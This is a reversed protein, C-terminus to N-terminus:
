STVRIPPARQTKIETTACSRSRSPQAHINQACAHLRNHATGPAADHTHTWPARRDPGIEIPRRAVNLSGAHSVSLIQGPIAHESAWVVSGEAPSDAFREVKTVLKM